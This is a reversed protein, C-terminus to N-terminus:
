MWGICVIGAFFISYPFGKLACVFSCFQVSFTKEDSVRRAGPHLFVSQQDHTGQLGSPQAVPSIHKRYTM